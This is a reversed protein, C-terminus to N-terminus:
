AARRLRLGLRGHPVRGNRVRALGAVAALAAGAVAVGVYDSPEKSQSGYLNPATAAAAAWALVALGAFATEGRSARVAGTAVIAAAAAFAIALFFPLAAYWGTIGVLGLVTPPFRREGLERFWNPDLGSRVHSSALAAMLIGSVVALGTTTAPFRRFSLALAVALLPTIAILYREGGSYSDFETKYSANYVMTLAVIGIVVLAEARLGRRFLLVVAVAACLLVPAITFFGTMAFLSELLHRLSPDAYGAIEGSTRERGTDSEGAYTVHFLSGFAWRQYLLIPAVGAAFGAVYALARRVRPARALAYLGLVLAAIANPYDTTVALGAVLGGAAVVPLRGATEREFFLCAFAAFVLCASLVHSHFVTAFPLVLTAGGVTVAVATGMGPEIRDAVRRVLVLLLTAPLVVGVLGLAWLMRTPDGTTRVGLERLAVYPGLTLFALGPPKNSYVRGNWRTVDGAAWDGVQFRTEDVAPTGSALAKILAYHSRENTTGGQHLWAYAVVLSLVALM